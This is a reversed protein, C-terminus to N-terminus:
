IANGHCYLLSRTPTGSFNLSLPSKFTNFHNLFASRILFSLIVLLTYIDSTSLSLPPSPPWRKSLYISYPSRKGFSLNAQLFCHPQTKITICPPTHSIPNYSQYLTALSVSEVRYSPPDPVEPTVGSIGTSDKPPDQTHGPTHNFFHHFSSFRGHFIM